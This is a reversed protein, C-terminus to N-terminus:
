GSRPRLFREGDFHIMHSPADAVWVETEWSIDNLYKVMAHRDLFATVFLLPIKSGRFIRRLEGERKPDIPGHSTVAEILMLWGKQQSYIVVDPAKSHKDITIGLESLGDVDIYAFKEGTDGVYLVIGGPTFRPAFENIIQEVLINQGGPTLDIIKGPAVQIPIRQMKREQAYRERLTEMSALYTGLGTAWTALGFSRILELVSAEIQYVTKDSNTPRSPNDPNITIIGAELFQHVSRRRVSERSNPAYQKGYNQAIFEIMPTIGVLPDSAATWPLDPRLHLLALLTLASREQLQGKPLGLARLITVAESVRRKAAVPDVGAMQSIGLEGEVLRDIEQQDPFTDGIKSGLAELTEHKPYKLSRLDGANVQTHGNFQRFYMDVLTSNLYAALGKALNVPLGHGDRHYFNLHNELGVRQGPVRAPDYIAAVLRRREEKATFRKTVVFTESPVLWHETAPTVAIANPKRGEPKPWAIFGDKNFHSPYILPVTDKAPLARLFSSLRFDVVPGTSVTLGLKDLTETLLAMRTIVAEGMEDPVLHIFVNPDRPKIVQDYDLMRLMIDDDQPGDSSTIAIKPRQRSKVARFIVNEQLVEDDKFAHDRAEFLHFRRPSMERLFFQRFPKFYTGNCFSRPTIAVLEGEPDLLRIVLGLFATYLNTTELGAEELMRYSASGINIKRYPPNLIAADYGSQEFLSGSLARVGDSIFDERRIEGYFSIGHASCLSECSELTERLYGIMDPDVEYATVIINKPKVDRHVQEGVFAATLSGVGAGADLLRMTDRQGEFMSAMLRAVNAPTFFQGLDSRRDPDLKRAADLRILDVRELLDASALASTM